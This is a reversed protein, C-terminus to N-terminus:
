PAPISERPPWPASARSSAIKFRASSSHRLFPSFTRTWWNSPQSHSEIQGQTKEFSVVWPSQRPIMTQDTLSSLDRLGVTKSLVAISVVPQTNEQDARIVLPDKVDRPFTPRVQAIKDRVDQVARMMETSIRFEAFVESRGERSNSRILKVGAVTNIAYELPKTVDAEVVEPSAGPYTTLVLVFPLSVDPMQEVRLRNYAFLGLVAIGIMVMTAFVPNNISVRTIWM